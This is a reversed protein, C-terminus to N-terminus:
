SGNSRFLRQYLFQTLRMHAKTATVTDAATPSPNQIYAKVTDIQAQLQAPTPPSGLSLTPVVPQTPPEPDPLDPTNGQAVWLAYDDYHRNGAQIPFSVGTQTDLITSVVGGFQIQKYRAM